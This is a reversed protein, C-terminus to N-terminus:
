EHDSEVLLITWRISEPKSRAAFRLEAVTWCAFALLCVICLSFYGLMVRKVLLWDREAASALTPSELNLYSALNPNCFHVFHVVLPGIIWIVAAASLVLLSCLALEVLTLRRSFRGISQISNVPQETPLFLRGAILAFVLSSLMQM